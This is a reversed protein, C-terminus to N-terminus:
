TMGVIMAGAVVGASTSMILFITVESSYRWTGVPVSGTACRSPLTKAEEDVQYRSIRFGIPPSRPCTNKALGFTPM